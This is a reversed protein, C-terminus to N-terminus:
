SLDHGCTYHNIVRLLWHGTLLLYYMVIRRSNTAGCRHGIFVGINLYKGM